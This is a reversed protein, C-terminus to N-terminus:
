VIFLWLRLCDVYIEIYDFDWVLCGHINISVPLLPFLTCASSTKLMSMECYLSSKPNKRSYLSLTGNWNSSLAARRHLSLQPSPPAFLIELNSWWLIFPPATSLVHRWLYFVQLSLRNMLYRHDTPTWYRWMQVTNTEYTTVLESVFIENTTAYQLRNQM